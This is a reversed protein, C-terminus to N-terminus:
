HDANKLHEYVRALAEKLEQEDKENPENEEGERQAIEEAEKKREEREVDMEKMAEVVNDVGLAELSLKTTVKEPIFASAVNIGEISAKQDHELVPPFMVEVTPDLSPVILETGTRYDFEVKGALKGARVAMDVAYRNIAKEMGTWFLQRHTFYLETPRDLTQATALAGQQADGSLITDPLNMGSAVMLRSQRADDAGTTTGTKNIATIDMDGPSQLMQGVREGRRARPAMDDPTEAADAGRASKIKEALKKLPKEKGSAKWAFRSLSKVITHWDELFGKYARAWAMSSYTMPVGFDMFKTGGSKMHIVPSDWRINLSGSTSPKTKPHWRWDPFLAEKQVKQSTGLNDSWVDEYWRRRYYMVVARDGPKRIIEAMELTPIQRVSVEGLFNTPMSIFLNGEIQEDVDVLVRANHDYLEERNAENDMMPKIIEEQIQEEKAQITVGQGWTYFTTVDVGRQILPNILYMSRSADIMDHLGQRTFEVEALASMRRWEPDALGTELQQITELLYGENVQAAQYKETLSLGGGGSEGLLIDRVGM